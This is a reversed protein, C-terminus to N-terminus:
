YTRVAAALMEYDGAFTRGLFIQEYWNHLKRPEIEVLNGFDDVIASGIMKNGVEGFWGEYFGISNKRM